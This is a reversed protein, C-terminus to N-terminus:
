HNQLWEQFEDEDISDSNLYDNLDMADEFEMDGIHFSGDYFEVSDFDFDPNEQAVIEFDSDIESVADFGSVRVEDSVGVSAFAKVEVFVLRGLWFVLFAGGISVLLPMCDSVWSVLSSKLPTLVSSTVSGLSDSLPNSSDQALLVSGVSVALLSIFSKIYKSQM